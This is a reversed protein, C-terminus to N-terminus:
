PGAAATFNVSDLDSSDLSVLKPEFVYRKSSVVLDYSTGGIVDSFRYYGFSNTFMRAVLTPGNFLSVNAASVARGNADVVRGAVTFRGAFNYVVLAFHQDTADANGLAGDGNIAASSVTVTVPTGATDGTRWVQEVNNRIDAVGGTISSGGSFM